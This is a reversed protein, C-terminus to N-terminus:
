EPVCFQSDFPGQLICPNIDMNQGLVLPWWLAPDPDLDLLLRLVSGTRHLCLAHGKMM